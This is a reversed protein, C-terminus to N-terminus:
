DRAEREQETAVTLGVEQGFSLELMHGDPSEIFAWYGVPAPSDTPGSRLCGDRRADACLRDVEDRSACGIGLHEVAPVLKNMWRALRRPMAPPAGVLVIVFPRTGDTIWAVRARTKPDTRDHVVHMGAYKAYFALSVDLDAVFFAVHTLGRDPM